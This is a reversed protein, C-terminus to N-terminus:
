HKWKTDKIEDHGRSNRSCCPSLCINCLVCIHTIDCFKMEWVMLVTHQLVIGQYQIKLLLARCYDAPDLFSIGNNDTNKILTILILFDVMKMSRAEMLLSDIYNLYKSKNKRSEQLTYKGLYM